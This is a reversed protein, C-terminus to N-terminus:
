RRHFQPPPAIAGRPDAPAQRSLKAALCRLVGRSYVRGPSARQLQPFARGPIAAYRCLICLAETIQFCLLLKQISRQLLIAWSRIWVLSTRVFRLKTDPIQKPILAPWTQAKKSCGFIHKKTLLFRKRKLHCLPLLKLLVELLPMGLIPKKLHLLAQQTRV